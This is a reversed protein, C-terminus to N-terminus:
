VLLLGHVEAQQLLVVLELLERGLTLWGSSFPDIQKTSRRTTPLCGLIATQVPGPQPSEALRAANANDKIREVTVFKFLFLFGIILELNM